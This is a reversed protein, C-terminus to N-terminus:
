GNSLQELQSQLTSINDENIVWARGGSEVIRRIHDLQLATPTNGGAKCEIAVFKGRYCVLYDPVGSNGYGGTVPMTFYCGSKKLVESVKKKVRGEPTM